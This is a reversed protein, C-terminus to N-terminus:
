YRRCYSGGLSVRRADTVDSPHHNRKKQSRTIRDAFEPFFEMMKQDLSTLCGQELAIGVLASNISKTVSHINVQLDPAGINFYDEAVLYGNKFVLLSYATELQSANYYLEAVLDPDLGQEEPTSVPWLDRSIPTYDVSALETASPGGCGVLVSVIMFLGIIQYLTYLKKTM